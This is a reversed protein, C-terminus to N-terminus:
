EKVLLNEKAQNFFQYNEKLHETSKTGTLIFGNFKKQL